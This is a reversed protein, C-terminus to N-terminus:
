EPLAWSFLVGGIGTVLYQRGDLMYTVPQSQMRAGGSSHWLTKGDSSRLALLNGPIDATFTLGSATTLIGAAPTGEGLEHTWRIDGTKYDIAKLV